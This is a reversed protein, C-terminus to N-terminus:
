VIDVDIARAITGGLFPFLLNFIVYWISCPFTIYKRLTKLPEKDPHKVGTEPDITPLVCRHTNIHLILDCMIEM